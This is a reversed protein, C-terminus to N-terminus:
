GMEATKDGFSDKPVIEIAIGETCVAACDTSQAPPGAIGRGTQHLHGFFQAVHRGNGLRQLFGAVACVEKVSTVDFDHTHFAIQHAAAILVDGAIGIEGQAFCFFALPTDVIGNRCM